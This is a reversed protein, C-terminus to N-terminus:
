ARKICSLKSSAFIWFPKSSTLLSIAIARGSQALSTTAVRSSNATRIINRDKRLASNSNADRFAEAITEEESRGSAVLKGITLKSVNLKDPMEEFNMKRM